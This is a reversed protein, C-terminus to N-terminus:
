RWTVLYRNIFLLYESYYVKLGSKEKKVIKENLSYTSIPVIVEVNHGLSILAQAQQQIFICFQPRDSSPYYNSVFLINM